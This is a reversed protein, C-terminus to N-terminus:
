FGRKQGARKKAVLMLVDGAGLLGGIKTFLNRATKELFSGGTDVRFGRLSSDRVLIKSISFNQKKLLARLSKINYGYRHFPHHLPSLLPSWDKGMIRFYFTAAKLMFAQTNPVEIFLVGDKKLVRGIHAIVKQPDDIHELVM